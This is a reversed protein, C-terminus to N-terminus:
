IAREKQDHRSLCGSSTTISTRRLDHSVWQAVSTTLYKEVYSSLAGVIAIVLVSLVAFELIALRDHGAISYVLTALWVPMQKSGLVYDFVIKLPWPELLDTASEGIVAVFGLTLPLWHPKLLHAIEISKRVSFRNALRSLSHDPVCSISTKNAFAM